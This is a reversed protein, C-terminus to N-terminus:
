DAVDTGADRRLRARALHHRLHRGLDCGAPARWGHEAACKAAPADIGRIPRIDPKVTECLFMVTPKATVTLGETKATARLRERAFREAFLPIYSKIRAGRQTELSAAIVREITEDSFTGAFERALREAIHEVTQRDALVSLDNLDHM